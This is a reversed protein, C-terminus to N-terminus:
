TWVVYKRLHPQAKNYRGGLRAHVYNEMPTCWELNSVENNSPNSDKHNIFPKGDPNTIFAEAVLRHVLCSRGKHGERRISVLAYGLKNHWLKLVRSVSRVRGFNSVQYKGNTGQIDVWKEM